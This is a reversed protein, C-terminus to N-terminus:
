YQDAHLIEHRDASADRLFLFFVDATFCLDSWFSDSGPPSVPSLIMKMVVAADSTNSDISFSRRPIVNGLERWGM